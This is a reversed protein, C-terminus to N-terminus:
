DVLHFPMPFQHEQGALFKLEDTSATTGGRYGAKLSQFAADTQARLYPYFSRWTIRDNVRIAKLMRAQPEGRITFCEAFARTFVANGYDDMWAAQNLLRGREDRYTSSNIDVFDNGKPTIFLSEFMERPFGEANVSVSEITVPATSCSDTILVTFRASQQKLFELVEKRAVLEKSGDLELFQSTSEPDTGGHLKLYCVLTANSLDTPGASLAQWLEARSAVGITGLDEADEKEETTERHSNPSESYATTKRIPPSYRVNAEGCGFRIVNEIRNLDAHPDGQIRRTSVAVLCVRSSRNTAARELPDTGKVHTAAKTAKSKPVKAPSPSEKAAPTAPTPVKESDIRKGETGSPLLDQVARPDSAAAPVLSTGRLPTQFPAGVSPTENRPNGYMIRVARIDLSSLEGDNNWRPNCYNMISQPDYLTVSWDGDTGQRQEKCWPPADDRNQEHALGLAHGFEHAAIYRISNDHNLECTQCWNNFTFNLVMGAPMGDLFRGLRKCHPGDDNILIRIGRSTDTSRGWGVFRVASEREWTIRVADRVLERERAYRDFTEADADWSVPIDLGDWISTRMAVARNVNEGSTLTRALSHTERRMSDLASNRLGIVRELQLIELMKQRASYDGPHLEGVEGLLEQIAERQQSQAVSESGATLHMEAPAHRINPADPEVDAPVKPQGAPHSSASLSAPELLPKARYPNPVSDQGALNSVIVFNALALFTLFKM